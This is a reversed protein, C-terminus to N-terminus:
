LYVHWSGSVGWQAEGREEYKRTLETKQAMLMWVHLLVFEFDIKDLLVFEVDVRGM